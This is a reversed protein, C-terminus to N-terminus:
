AAGLLVRLERRTKAPILRLRRLAAVQSLLVERAQDTLELRLSWLLDLRIDRGDQRQNRRRASTRARDGRIVRPLDHLNMM